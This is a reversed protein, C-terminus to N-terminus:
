VSECVNNKNMLDILMRDRYTYFSKGMDLTYVHVIIFRKLGSIVGPFLRGTKFGNWTTKSPSLFRVGFKLTLTVFNQNARGNRLGLLSKSIKLPNLRIRPYIGCNGPLGNRKKIQYASKGFKQLHPIELFLYTLM